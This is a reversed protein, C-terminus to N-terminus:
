NKLLWLEFENRISKNEVGDLLKKVLNAERLTLASPTKGTTLESLARIIETQNAARNKLLEKIKAAM